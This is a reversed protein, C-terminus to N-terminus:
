VADIFPKFMNELEKPIQEDIQFNLNILSTCSDLVVLASKNADCHDVRALRNGFAQNVKHIEEYMKVFGKLAWDPMKGKKYRLYQAALYMCIARYQTESATAFPLHFSVMPRLKDMIPCGSTVMYIGLISSLATQLDTTKVFVRSNTQVSVEFQQHSIFNSFFNAVVLINVAIPCHPHESAKLPCNPCKSCELQTWDPLTDAQKPTVISLTQADLVIQFHKVEGTELTFSYKYVINEQSM